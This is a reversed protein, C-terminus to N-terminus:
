VSIMIPNIASYRLIHHCYKNRQASPILLYYHVFKCYYKDNAHQQETGYQRSTYFGSLTCHHVCHIIDAIISQDPFRVDDIQGVVM